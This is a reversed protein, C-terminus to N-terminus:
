LLMPIRVAVQADEESLSAGLLRVPDKHVMEPFTVRGSLESESYPIALQTYSPRPQQLRQTQVHGFQQPYKNYVQHSKPIALKRDIGNFQYSNGRKLYDRKAKKSTEVRKREAFNQHGFPQLESRLNRGQTGTSPEPMQKM